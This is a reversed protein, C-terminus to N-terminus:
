RYFEIAEIKHLSSPVNRGEKREKKIQEFLLVVHLKKLYCLSCSLLALYLVLQQGIYHTCYSSLLSVLSSCFVFYSLILSLM